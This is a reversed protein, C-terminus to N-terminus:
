NRSVFSCPSGSSMIRVCTMRNKSKSDSDDKTAPGWRRDPCWDLQDDMFSFMAEWLIFVSPFFPFSLPVLGHSDPTRKQGNPEIFTDSPIITVRIQTSKVFHSTSTSSTRYSWYVIFLGFLPRSYILNSSLGVLAASSADVRPFKLDSNIAYKNKRCLEFYLPVYAWNVAHIFKILISSFLSIASM